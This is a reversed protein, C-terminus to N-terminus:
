NDKGRRFVGSKQTLSGTLASVMDKAVNILEKWYGLAIAVGDNHYQHLRGYREDLYRPHIRTVVDGDLQIVTQMAVIEVGVEWIKRITVLEDPTLNLSPIDKKYLLTARSFENTYNRRAESDTIQAIIDNPTQIELPNINALSPIERMCVATLIGKLQDANDKIRNLVSLDTKEDVTLDPKRCLVDIKQKASTRIADFAVFGGYLDGAEWPFQNEDGAPDIMNTDDYRTMHALTDDYHKGIDILAHRPSPMKQVPIQENLIINVEINMLDKALNAFIEKASQDTKNNAM